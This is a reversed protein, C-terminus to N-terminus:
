PLKVRKAVEEICFNIQQRISTCEPNTADMIVRPYSCGGMCLPLVRCSACASYALPHYSGWKAAVASDREGTLVNGIAEDKIGASEWCRSIDGDADIVFMSGLTASCFHKKPRLKNALLQLMEPRALFEQEM